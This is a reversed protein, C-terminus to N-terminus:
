PAPRYIAIVSSHKPRDIPTGQWGLFRIRGRWFRIEAHPLVLDHFWGTCTSTPLLAVVLSGQTAAEIARRLWPAPNSYPPNLWIKGAWPQLLGNEAMTYFKPAKATEPRCCPDLDFPGFEAALAGFVAPPTSWEDSSWFSPRAPAVESLM